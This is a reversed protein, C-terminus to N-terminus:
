RGCVATPISSCTTGLSCGQPAAGGCHRLRTVARHCQLEILVWGKSAALRSNRRVGKSGWMGSLERQVVSSHPQRPSTVGGWRAPTHHIPNRRAVGAAPGGCHCLLARVDARAVATACPHVPALACVAPVRLSWVGTPTGGKHGRAQSMTWGGHFRARQRTTHHSRVSLAPTGSRMSGSRSSPTHRGLLNDLVPPICTAGEHPPLRDANTKILLRVHRGFFSVFSHFRLSRPFTYFRHSLPSLLLFPAGGM